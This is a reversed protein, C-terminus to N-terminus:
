CARRLLFLLSGLVAGVAGALVLLGILSLKYHFVQPLLEEWPLLGWMWCSMLAARYSSGVAASILPGEIATLLTALISLLATVLARVTWLM